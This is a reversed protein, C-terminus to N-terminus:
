FKPFFCHSVKCEEGLEDIGMVINFRHVSEEMKDTLGVIFRQSVTEMAFDLDVETVQANMRKGALHKVMHNNDNNEEEAWKLLSLNKWSPNYTREWTRIVYVIIRLLHINSM